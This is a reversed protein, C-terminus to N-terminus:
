HICFQVIELNHITFDIDLKTKIVKIIFIICILIDLLITILCRPIHLIIISYYM